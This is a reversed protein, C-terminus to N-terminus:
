ISNIPNYKRHKLKKGKKHISQKTFQYTQLNEDTFYLSKIKQKQKKKMFWNCQSNIFQHFTEVTVYLCIHFSKAAFEYFQQIYRPSTKQLIFIVRIYYSKCYGTNSQAMFSSHNSKLKVMELLWYLWLYSLDKCM